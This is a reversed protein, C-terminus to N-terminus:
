GMRVFTIQVLEEDLRLTQPYRDHAALQDVDSRWQPHLWHGEATWAAASTIENRLARRGDIATDRLKLAPVTPVRPRVRM